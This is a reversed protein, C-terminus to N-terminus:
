ELCYVKDGTVAIICGEPSVWMDNFGEDSDFEPGRVILSWREGNFEFVNGKKDAVWYKKMSRGWVSYLARVPYEQGAVTLSQHSINGNCIKTIHSDGGIIICNEKDLFWAMPLTDYNMGEIEKLLIWRGSKYEVIAGAANSGPHGDYFGLANGPSVTTASVIDSSRMEQGDISAITNDATKIYQNKINNKSPTLKGSEFIWYDSNGNDTLLGCYVDSDLIFVRDCYSDKGLIKIGTSEWLGLNSETDGLTLVQQHSNIFRPAALISYGGTKEVRWEGKQFTLLRTDMGEGLLSFMERDWGGVKKFRCKEPLLRDASYIVKWKTDKYDKDAYQLISDGFGRKYSSKLIPKLGLVPAMKLILPVSACLLLFCAAVFIRRMINAVSRGRSPKSYVLIEPAPKPTSVVAVPVLFLDAWERITQPRREPRTRLGSDLAADWIGLSANWEGPLKPHPLKPPGDALLEYCAHSIVFVDAAESFLPLSALAAAEPAVGSLHSRFSNDIWPLWFMPIIVPHDNVEWWLSEDCGWLGLQVSHLEEVLGILANTLEQMRAQSGCATFLPKPIGGSNELLVFSLRNPAGVDKYCRPRLPNTVANYVDVARCILEWANSQSDPLNIELIWGGRDTAKLETSWPQSYNKPDMYQGSYLSSSWRTFSWNKSVVRQRALGLETRTLRRFELGHRTM